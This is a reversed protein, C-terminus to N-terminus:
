LQPEKVLKKEARRVAIDQSMITIVSVALGFAGHAKPADWFEEPHSIPNRYHDKIHSLPATVKEDVGKDKLLKIYTGMNRNSPKEIDLLDFYEEVVVAEMARYVHFGTATPINVALCKTAERIDNTVKEKSKGLSDLISDPFVAEGKSMLKETDYACKPSIYYINATPLESSLTSQFAFLYNGLMTVDDAALAEELPIKAVGGLIEPPALRPIYIKDLASVLDEASKRAAPLIEKQTVFDRFRSQATYAARLLSQGTPAPELNEALAGLCDGLWFIANTDSKKVDSGWSVLISGYRGDSINM